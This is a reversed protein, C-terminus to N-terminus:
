PNKCAKLNEGNGYWTITHLFVVVSLGYGQTALQEMVSDKRTQPTATNVLIVVVLILSIQLSFFFM